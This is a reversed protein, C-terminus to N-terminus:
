WLNRVLVVILGILGLPIYIYAFVGFQDIFTLLSSKIRSSNKFIWFLLGLIILCVVFGILMPFLTSYDDKIFAQFFGVKYYGQYLVLGITSVSLVLFGKYGFGTKLWNSPFIISILVLGFTLFLSELLAFALMYFLIAAIDGLQYYLLFSPLVFLFGRISWGFVVFLIVNFVSLIESGIPLRNGLVKLTTKVFRM